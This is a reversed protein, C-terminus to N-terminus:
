PGPPGPPRVAPPGEAPVPLLLVRVTPLRFERGLTVGEPLHVHLPLDGAKAGAPLERLEIWLLIDERRLRRVKAEPGRVRVRLREPALRVLPAAVTGAGGAGGTGGERPPQWVGIPVDEVNLELPAPGIQVAVPVAEPFPEVSIKRGGATVERALTVTIHFPARRAAVDIPAALEILLKEKVDAFASEPARVEVEGLLLDPEGILECGAASLAEAGVIRPPQVEAKRIARRALGVVLSPPDFEVLLPEPHEGQDNILVDARTLDLTQPFEAPADPPPQRLGTVSLHVRAVEAFDRRAGRLYVKVREAPKVQNERPDLQGVSRVMWGEPVEGFLVPLTYPQEIALMEDMRFWILLACVVAM